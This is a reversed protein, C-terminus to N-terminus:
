ASQKWPLFRARATRSITRMKRKPWRSKPTQCRSEGEKKALLRRRFEAQKEAVRALHAAEGIDSGRTTATKGGKVRGSTKYLHCDAHVARLYEPDNQPPVFEGDVTSFPRFVLAPEHDFDINSLTGLHEGCIACRAQRVMVELKVKLPIAKRKDGTTM